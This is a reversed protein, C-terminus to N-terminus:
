GKLWHQWNKMRRKVTSCIFAVSLPIFQGLVHQLSTRWEVIPVALLYCVMSIYPWSMVSITTYFIGM